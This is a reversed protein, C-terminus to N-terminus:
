IALTLPGETLWSSVPAPEHRSAIALAMALAVLGDIRGSAKAKSFKRNGAADLELVANSVCMNLVPHLGHRLRREAIMHEVIDVAPGMDRFGQGHEALEIHDGGRVRLERRLDEIRWRDYAVARLDYRASARMIEAAVYGPDLTAGPTAVLFGDKAWQDYPVRDADSREGLNDGPLFFRPVVDFKDGDPFVLVFATLDRTAGMDLAAFCTKGDLGSRPKAGCREWEARGIFRTHAAVRMNLILNRFPNERSSVKQAQGAQRQVDELSRFDGLAPNAARWAEESWPDASEPAAYMTLHFSADAVEGANVKLGYDVLESMPAHDDAAQTSIVLLLPEARAGMATDMADFLDRKPAQGLEDYATFSPSLGMKTAADASLATYVSGAGDGSLVEITKQFRIINLRDSLEAHQGIIAVMESFIKGAQFRDNACSYVEGRSEAEPGALHCLALGAALQTKGNKRGMTLVATRVPRRGSEDQAYVNELFARQWPRVKLKTGALTGSTIALDELFAVVRGVRFLGKRQWPLRKRLTPSPKGRGSLPKAGIGRLGM